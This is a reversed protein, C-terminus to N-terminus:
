SCALDRRNRMSVEVRNRGSRKAQYLAEDARAILCKASDGQHFQTIGISITVPLGQFDTQEVARRIRQAFTAAGDLPTHQLLITFEEGGWRSVIDSNRLCAKVTDTLQKIIADGTDHGHTDNISKFRDIDFIILSFASDQQSAQQIAQQMAVDFARRNPIGTLHDLSAQRELEYEIRKRETINHFVSVFNRINGEEDRVATISQWIPYIDGHKDRNWIEGQWHGTALLTDWLEAYFTAEHRGSKFLKPTRGIVDDAQYGTIETFARNVKEIRMEADTILTAQGTEFATALLRLQGEQHKRETIDEKVTIYSVIEEQSNRVPTIIEAEWYLEGNKKRNLLEGKWVRGNSLTRWMEQYTSEPTLGSKIMAPTKGILEDRRYGTVEIFQRNVFEIRGETDTIATAVPSQEVAIYFHHLTARLSDLDDTYELQSFDACRTPRAREPKEIRSM